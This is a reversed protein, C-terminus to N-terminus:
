PKIVSQFDAPEGIRTWSLPPSLLMAPTSALPPVPATRSTGSCVTSTSLGSRATCRCSRARVVRSSEEFSESRTTKASPYHAPRLFAINHVDVTGSNSKVYTTSPVSNERSPLPCSRAASPPPPRSTRRARSAGQPPFTQRPHLDTKEDDSWNQSGAFTM